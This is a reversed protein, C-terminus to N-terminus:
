QLYMEPFSAFAENRLQGFDPCGGSGVILPQISYIERKANASVGASETRLLTLAAKNDNDNSISETLIKNDKSDELWGKTKWGAGYAAVVIAIGIYVKIM